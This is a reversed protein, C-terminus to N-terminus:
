VGARTGTEPGASETGVAWLQQMCGGERLVDPTSRPPVGISQGNSHNTYVLLPVLFLFSSACWGAEVRVSPLVPLRQAQRSVRGDQLGPAAQAQRALGHLQPVGQGRRETAGRGGRGRLQAHSRAHISSPWDASRSVCHDGMTAGAVRRRVRLVLGYKSDAGTLKGGVFFEKGALHEEVYKINNKITPMVFAKIVNDCIGSAVPRVLWPASKPILTFVMLQIFPPTASGEAWHLWQLYHSRDAYDALHPSAPIALKGDGFRECLFEVIAGSEPLTVKTEGEEIVLVPSRGLPHIQAALIYPWADAPPRPSGLDWCTRRRPQARLASGDGLRSVPPLLALPHTLSVDRLSKPARKNAERAYTM